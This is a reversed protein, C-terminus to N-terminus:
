EASSIELRMSKLLANELKSELSKISHQITNAQLTTQKELSLFQHSINLATIVAIRDISLVNGTDRMETMKQELYEAAQHLAAVDAEPCKIQYTKGLIEITTNVETSM